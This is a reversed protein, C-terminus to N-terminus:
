AMANVPQLTIVRDASAITSPRHAIIVRTMKLSSIAENVRKENDLDLHSTAEDMFLISPRRYLARAILVRQKQGGSLSGGLEGVLTEYGMPMKMIDDHINCHKACEVIFETDPHADFSCINEAISGALLKDEQLVCAICERYNNIGIDHINIGNIFLRGETPELLGCMLKMLTTKGVGSPGVIAVSEGAAIQLSLGPIVPRSLSDYQYLLDRVEFTVAENPDCIKRYPKEEETTSLVIDALRENHLNLMRLRIVMDILNSARDSFQGRYANFAVFMGLTMQSDIVLSAGLWLIVIQDCAALFANVGGFFMDLKTVRINANATDINLNLWFQSRTGALGLSKLTAISYLTEMFHSSAKASKVLQEESAQRYYRYTSLRLLVYLVTFGSAVWVLWGGYMFMMIFVGVSMIGDIISSVISTTFTTRIADLSGFRSQIDGLKRKEFYALPLKMLHDFLGSKWQIDILAGMVISIWSRFMSVCTRFLIFFLLGVCIIVLLNHDGAQIVHDMVLQTGVPMLLNVAEIVLSLAFIKVLASKLGTVNSLLKRFHLRNKQVVPTFESSPWVELAIGTFHLSFEQLGIVRRGFAPDHLTIRGGRINVLVVFHNMDWHLICPRKVQHIEDLSLSLARTKLNLNEAIAILSSLTAGRASIDFKQRMSLMDIHMGYYGCVMALSALGCEAAETQLVQPVKRRLSLNLKDVINEYVKNM